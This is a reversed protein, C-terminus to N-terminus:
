KIIGQLYMSNLSFIFFVSSTLSPESLEDNDVYTTFVPRYYILLHSLLNCFVAFSIANLVILYEKLLAFPMQLQLLSVECLLGSWSRITEQSGTPYALLVSMPVYTWVHMCIFMVSDNCRMGLRVHSGKDNSFIIVHKNKNWALKNSSNGLLVATVKQTLYSM